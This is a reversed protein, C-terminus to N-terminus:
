AGCWFLARALARDARAPPPVQGGASARGVPGRRAQQLCQQLEGQSLAGEAVLGDYKSAKRPQSAAAKHLRQRLAIALTQCLQRAGDEDLKGFPLSARNNILQLVGYLTEGEMVPLVLLQRTRYGSRKDVEDLFRLAPHIRKLARDDYVDAINVMQRSMAVYGAISQASIPLKLERSTSLGTKVKSVIASRDENVAYLTLRDANFLECIDRSVELM